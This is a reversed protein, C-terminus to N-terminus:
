MEKIRNLEKFLKDIEDLANYVYLSARCTGTMGLRKMLPVNCHNGARISIGSENLLSAVDHPHLNKLNFSIIGQNKEPVYFEMGAAERSKEVVYDALRKVRKEIKEMGIKELYKIAEALGIAGAVNVTGAEFKEPTERWDANERSVSSVMGGGFSFPEMRELLEKRGYLVGTGFPALMKHGSFALFDCGIKGVDTKAHPVSQAGDVVTMAGKEKAIKVLEEVPNITGLSNSVHAVSLVATKDTIKRTADDSDLEFDDKIGIFKLKWGKRKALRQWPVLNSHHEAETLVMENKGKGALSDIVRSLSNLSDTTGSTFIVEEPSANVFDAVIKRAGGYKETARESLDYIGRHVNSNHREYFEVVANMVQRPKQTTAASDLYILGPNNEFVPFDKKVDM